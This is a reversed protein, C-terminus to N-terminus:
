EKDMKVIKNNRLSELYRESSGRSYMLAENINSGLTPQFELGDFSFDPFMKESFELIEDHHIEGIELLYDVRGKRYLAPDITEISNTTLFILSDDLPVLGDLSNLIASLSLASPINISVNGDKEKPVENLIRAGEIGRDKVASSSDFDEIALLSNRPLDRIAQNFTEDNMHSINLVCLNMNYHSAIGKIISTKGTGPEGYLIYTLKNPLNAREFWEKNNRFNDINHILEEKKDKNMIVTDLSRPKVYTEMREWSGHQYNYIALGSRDENTIFHKSLEHFPKHTRGFTSIRIEEKQLESGSSEIKEKKMWFLRKNHFFWHFGYGVSIYSHKDNQQRAYWTKPNFSLNRSNFNTMKTSLFTNIRSTYYENTDGANLITFTTIINRKIFHFISAPIGRIIYAIAGAVTVVLFGAM